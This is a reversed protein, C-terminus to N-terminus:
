GTKREAVAAEVPKWNVRWECTDSGATVCKHHMVRADRGGALVVAERLYAGLMGCLRRNGLDHDRLHVVGSTASDFSAEMAGVDYQDRWLLGLSRVTRAVDGDRLLSRYVGGMDVRAAWEGMMLHTRAPDPSAEISIRLLEFYDDAPYWAAVSIREHLYRQLSPPISPLVRERQSRLLKIVRLLVTGRVNAV